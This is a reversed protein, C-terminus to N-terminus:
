PLVNRRSHPREFPIRLEIWRSEGPALPPQLDKWKQGVSAMAISLDNLANFSSVLIKSDVVLGSETILLGLVLVEGGQEEPYVKAAVEPPADPVEADAAEGIKPMDALMRANTVNLSPQALTPLSPMLEVIPALPVDLPPTEVVVPVPAKPLKVKKSPVPKDLKLRIEEVAAKAQLPAPAARAALRVSVKGILPTPPLVLAVKPALAHSLGLALIIGGLASVGKVGREYTLYRM